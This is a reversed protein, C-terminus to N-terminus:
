RAARQDPLAAKNGAQQIGATRKLGYIVQEGAEIGGNHVRAPVIPEESARGRAYGVTLAALM